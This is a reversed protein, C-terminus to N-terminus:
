PQNMIEVCDIRDKRYNSRIDNDQFAKLLLVTAKKLNVRCLWNWTSKDAM